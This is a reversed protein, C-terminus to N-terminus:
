TWFTVVRPWSHCSDHECKKYEEGDSGCGAIGSITQSRPPSEVSERIWTVLSEKVVGEGFAENPRHARRRVRHLARKGLVALPEGDPVSKRASSGAFRAPVHAAVAIVVDVGVDSGDLLQPDAVVPEGQGPGPHEWVPRAPAVVFESGVVVPREDLPQLLDVHLRHDREVVPVQGLVELLRQAAPGIRLQHVNKLIVCIKAELRKPVVHLEPDGDIVRKNHRLVPVAGPHDSGPDFVVRVEAKPDSVVQQLNTTFGFWFM